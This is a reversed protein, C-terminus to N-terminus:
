THAFRMITNSESSSEKENILPFISDSYNESIVVDLDMCIIVIHLIDNTLIQTAAVKPIMM